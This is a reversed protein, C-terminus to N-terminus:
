RRREIERAPNGAVITYPEVPKTVVAGAGVIAGDGVDEMIVAHAGIWVDSGVRIRKLQGGQRTMPVDTRSYNHYKSGSLFCCAEATMVDNGFDCHHITNYAGILVNDGLSISRYNVVTGFGIFVNRGCRRLTFRYFDYRVIEGLGFPVQSLAQAAFRFGSEPTMRAIVIFPFVFPLAIARAIKIIMRLSKSPEFMRYRIDTYEGQRIDPQGKM